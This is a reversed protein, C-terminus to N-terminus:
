KQESPSHRETSYTGGLYILIEGKKQLPLSVGESRKQAKRAKLAHNDITKKTAPQQHQRKEKGKGNIERFNEDLDTSKSGKKVEEMWSTRNCSQVVPQSEKIIDREKKEV